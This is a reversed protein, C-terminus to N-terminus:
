HLPPVHPLLQLALPAWGLAQLEGPVRSRLPWPEVPDAIMLLVVAMPTIEITSPSSPVHLRAPM